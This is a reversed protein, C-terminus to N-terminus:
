GPGPRGRIPYNPDNYGRGTKWGPPVLSDVFAEDEPTVEVTMSALNDELQEMTRPGIIASTVIPNALTWALAFQSIATGRRELYASLDAAVRFSVERLETQQIRRDGRAARSGEPPPQGPRYKGTLVGRALPSYVVVGVGSDACCPFLEVEVERNVLNYLPQVCVVPQYGRRDALALMREVQFAYYNSCAPYRIKGQRVLDDLAALTEELPTGYDPAHMYYVDITDVGLRRLSAECERIVHYRSLGQDNPGDGMPQRVKTALVVSDRRGRLARGTVEESRGANYMNATDVFNIGADLARHIIRISEPEDTAGGFMMTGLCLETVRVGSGGLNVTKM